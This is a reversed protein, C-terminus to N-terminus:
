GKPPCLLWAAYFAALIDRLFWITVTACVVFVCAAEFWKRVTELARAQDTM